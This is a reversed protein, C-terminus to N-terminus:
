IFAMLKCCIEHQYFKISLKMEELSELINTQILRQEKINNKIRNRLVNKFSQQINYNLKFM